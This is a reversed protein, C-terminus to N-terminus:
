PHDPFPAKINAQNMLLRGLVQDAAM